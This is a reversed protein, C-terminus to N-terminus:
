RVLLLKRTQSFHESTLRYFYVGSSVNIGNKDCGDWIQSHTGPSKAGDLLTRILRGRVSFLQLTIHATIPNDFTVQTKRNFPNPFNQYLVFHHPLQRQQENANISVILDSHIRIDDLSWGKRNQTQISDSVFRFRILINDFDSFEQLSIQKEEWTSQVGTIPEGIQRWSEGEGLRIEVFGFDQNEDANYKHMFSLIPNPAKTLDIAYKTTLSVDQNKPYASAPSNGAGYKGAYKLLMSFGWGEPETTWSSMGNEFDEFGVVFSELSCAGSNRHLSVDCAKIQYDVTDGPIYTAQIEGSFHNPNNTASFKTSDADSQGRVRHIVWVSTSDVGLNDVVMTELLLPQKNPLRNFLQSTLFITPRATDPGACYSHLTDPASIPNTWNFYEHSSQIYYEIIAANGPAPIDGCYSRNEMETMAVSHFDNEGELRWFLQVSQVEQVIGTIKATVKRAQHIEETDKLPECEIFNLWNLIRMMLEARIPSYKLSKAKKETDVSELGFATYVVKHEGAYKVAAGRGDSYTFIKSAGTTPEIVDPAQYGLQPPPPFIDFLLGNSLDDGLTGFIHHSRSDHAIFDAHLYHQMFQKAEPTGSWEYCGIGLNDGCIFLHGGCDLYDRFIEYGDDPIFNRSFSVIVVPYKKLTEKSVGGSKIFDWNSYLLHQSDLIDLFIEEVKPYDTDYDVFLLPMKGISIQLTDQRSYNDDSEIKLVLEIDQAKSNDAINFSFDVSLTIDGPFFVSNRTADLLEVDPNNCVLLLHAADASGISYNRINITLRISEGRELVNNNNGYTSDDVSFSFMALRAKADRLESETVARFANVRGHGLKDVYGPNINKINDATLLVQRIVQENNWDPHLSKVLGCVGAVIPCAMSTGRWSDYENEPVTSLILSNGDGGPACIDVWLGYNSSATKTDKASIAAVAIAHHYSCPYYDREVNENGASCIVIAGKSHAYTIVEQGYKTFGRGSWSNSIIHAGNDAAYIIGELGHTILYEDDASAKIPKYSCNWGAGAIGIQNNTAACAIGACHTGHAFAPMGPAPSIPDADNNAFDWGHIDDIYGNDDDDVGTIGNEEIRNTWVNQSLDEHKYDTGIDVIAIIVASDGKQMDWTEPAYIQPLYFQENYRPDNPIACPFRAYVPEAYEVNPDRSLERAAMVPNLHEPIEVKLIRSIDPIGLNPPIPKHRFKKQVNTAGFKSLKVDLSSIGTAMSSKALSRTQVHPKVKIVVEGPIVIPQDPTPSNSYGANGNQTSSRQAGGTGANQAFIFICLLAAAQVLRAKMLWKM